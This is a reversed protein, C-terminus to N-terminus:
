VVIFSFKKEFIYIRGKVLIRHREIIFENIYRDATRFLRIDAVLSSVVVALQQRKYVDLHTYSVPIITAKLYVLLM